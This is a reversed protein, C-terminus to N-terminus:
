KRLLKSSLYKIRKKADKLFKKQEKLYKQIAKYNRSRMWDSIYTDLCHKYPDNFYDEAMLIADLAGLLWDLEIDDPLHLIKAYECIPYVTLVRNSKLEIEKFEKKGYLVKKFTNEVKEMITKNFYDEPISNYLLEEESVLEGNVWEYGNGNVFFLQDLVKEKSYNFNIDKYLIPYRMIANVITLELSAM